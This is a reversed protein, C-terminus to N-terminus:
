PPSSVQGGNSMFGFSSRTKSHRNTGSISPIMPLVADTVKAASAEPLVVLVRGCSRRNTLAGARAISPSITFNSMEIVLVPVPVAM